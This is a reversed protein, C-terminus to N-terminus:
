KEKSRSILSVGYTEKYKNSITDINDRLPHHLTHRDKPASDYTTRDANLTQNQPKLSNGM